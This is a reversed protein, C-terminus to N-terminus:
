AAEATEQKTLAMRQAPKMNKVRVADSADWALELYKILALTARASGTFQGAVPQTRRYDPKEHDLDDVIVPRIEYLDVEADRFVGYKVGTPSIFKPICEERTYSTVEETM